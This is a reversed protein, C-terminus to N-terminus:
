GKYGFAMLIFKRLEGNKSGPGRHIFGKNPADKLLGGSKRPTENDLEYPYGSYLSLVGQPVQFVPRKEFSHCSQRSADTPNNDKPIPALYETGSGTLTISCLYPFQDVHWNQPHSGPFDKTKERLNISIPELNKIKIKSIMEQLLTFLNSTFYHEQIYPKFLAMNRFNGTQGSAKILQDFTKELKSLNEQDPVLHIPLGNELREKLCEKVRLATPNNQGTIEQIKNFDFAFHNHSAAPGSTQPLTVEPVFIEQLVGTTKIVISYRSPPRFHRVTRSATQGLSRHLQPLQQ